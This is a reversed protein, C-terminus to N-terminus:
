CLEFLASKNEWSSISHYVRNRNNLPCYSHAPIPVALETAVFDNCDNHVVVVVFFRSHSLFGTM